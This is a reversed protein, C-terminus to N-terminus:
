AVLRWFERVTRWAHWSTKIGELYTLKGDALGEIYCKLTAEAEDYLPKYQETVQGAAEAAQLEALRDKAWNLARDSRVIRGTAYALTIGGGVIAATEWTAIGELM